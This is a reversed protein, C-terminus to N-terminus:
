ASTPHRRLHTALKTVCSPAPLTVWGRALYKQMCCPSNFAGRLNSAEIVWTRRLRCFCARRELRHSWFTTVGAVNATKMVSAWGRFLNCQWSKLSPTTCGGPWNRGRSAKTFSQEGFRANKRGQRGLSCWSDYNSCLLCLDQLNGLHWGSLLCSHGASAFDRLTGQSKHSWCELGTAARKFSKASSDRPREPELAQHSAKSTNPRSCSWHGSSNHILNRTWSTCVQAPAHPRRKAGNWFYGQARLLIKSGLSATLWLRAPRLQGGHHPPPKCILVCLRLTSHHWEHLKAMHLWKLKLCWSLLFFLPYLSLYLSFSFTLSCALCLSISLSLSLALSLSMSLCLSVYLSLSLSLLLFIPLASISPSPSLSLSVSPIPVLSFSSSCSVYLYLSLSFSDSLSLSPFNYIFNQQTTTIM